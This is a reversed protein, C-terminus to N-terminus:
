TFIQTVYTVRHLVSIVKLPTDALQCIQTIDKLSSM